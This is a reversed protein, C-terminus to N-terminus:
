CSTNGSKKTLCRWNHYFISMIKKGKQRVQGSIPTAVSVTPFASIGRYVLKESRAIGAAAHNM